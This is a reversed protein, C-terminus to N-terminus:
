KLLLMKRIQVSGRSQLHVFYVGATQYEANWSLSYEGSNQVGDVLVAVEKGLSNYVTLQVPGAESIQYRIETSPNFPNPYNSLTFSKPSMPIDCCVATSMREMEVSATIFPGVGKGDNTSQSEEYCYYNFSGDRGYGLGATRCIHVVSLVGSVSEVIFNELIGEYAKQAAPLYSEDLYGMRIGKAITYTMMCTVSAELYNGEREGQDIVQWWVGSEEDQYAVMAEVIRNLIGILTERGDHDEPLFDLVDVLAMNFWGIARGWFSPSCGTVPDAWSQNGSEDWGHYLLGTVSDRAHAEMLVFQNVVDDFADPEEMVKGYYAYFPSGMYLGDLWMQSPYRQKHWFGGESTRPHRELQGRLRDSALKYKVEGLEEYLFLLMIGTKVEDINYDSERYDSIIGNSSILRSITKEIYDFYQDDGTERWLEEFGRLVTGTVYSWDSYYNPHRKVVSEAMRESWRSADQAMLGQTFLLFIFGTKIFSSFYLKM